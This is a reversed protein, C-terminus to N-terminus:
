SMTAGGDVCLIQGVIDASVDSVLFAVANAIDQTTTGRGIPTHPTFAKEIDGHPRPDFHTLAWGPAVSNVNVGSKIAMGALGRTFIYIASKSMAYSSVAPFNMKPVSSSINIIKGYQREMMGPLVAQSVLMAGKINLSFNKDWIAEEQELFGPQPIMGGANNVLIDIKGFEDLVQKTMATIDAKSTVDCKVAIAKVGLKEVDQATLVVNDYDKDSVAIDAGEAALTLAIQKGFGIQSGAGTILATKGKLGLDM